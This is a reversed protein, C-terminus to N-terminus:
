EKLSKFGDILQKKTPKGYTNDFLDPLFWMMMNKYFLRENIGLLKAYPTWSQRPLAPGGQEISGLFTHRLTAIEAFVQRLSFGAEERKRKLYKSGLERRYEPDEVTKKIKSAQMITAKWYQGTALLCM